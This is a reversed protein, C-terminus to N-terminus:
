KSSETKTKHRGRGLSIAVTQRLSARERTASAALLRAAIMENAKGACNPDGGPYNHETPDETIHFLCGKKPPDLCEFTPVKGGTDPWQGNDSMFWVPMNEWMGKKKLVATLNGVADDLAKVMSHCIMRQALQKSTDPVNDFPGGGAISMRDLYIQPAVHPPHVLHAAYFAFLPTSPDHNEIVDTLRTQFLYEIYTCQTHKGKDKLTCNPGHPQIKDAPKDTDWLDIGVGCFDGTKSTYYDTAHHFYSLGTDYGRGHPTHTPTAMGQLKFINVYM